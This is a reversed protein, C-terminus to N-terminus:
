NIKTLSFSQLLRLPLLTSNISNISFQLRCQMLSRNKYIHICYNTFPFILLCCSKPPVFKSRRRFNYIGPSPIIM